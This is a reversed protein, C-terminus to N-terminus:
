CMPVLVVVECCFCCNVHSFEIFFEQCRLLHHAWDSVHSLSQVRNWYSFGDKASSSVITILSLSSTLLVRSLRPMEITVLCISKSWAIIQIQKISESWAIIQIQKISKSWAIYIISFLICVSKLFIAIIILVTITVVVFVVAVDATFKRLIFFWSGLDLSPLNSIGKLVDHFSTHNLGLM